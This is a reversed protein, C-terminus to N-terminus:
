QDSKWKFVSAAIKRLSPAYIARKRHAFVLKPILEPGSLTADAKQEALFTYDRLSM